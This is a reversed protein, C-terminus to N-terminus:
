KLSEFYAKEDFNKVKAVGDKVAAAAVATSVAAKVREDFPKPIVYDRGFELTSLNYAKKVADSVPLKALDALAKAAAVKMNETIKSARVDLAGRFIFPFGLVNNIQNPYDSRGTGVIADKRLRAVDEPMVEPIPNALAFIVPDKAMSLVMEDDLIKPASLGLFVDAGKLVEKLTKEKSDVAFELKQPTLDNRDKSIVGKSDVLIINEVGLNRYMKASAIGAAGAGSVVVKIDKFKKGSIEMANMLGATSIIATGHQDDHMVPIGLDQLAAEIEFCKPAAIDELNIGGVTPALAKCFNVIEEISHVNIEIDYANVNAFKKFLCAKGEMVPKSAQAGINGLGLVASGDSVIAVLNAKNTYTYALENDKAIELCPEAVGPSYALSLDYSTAMPKSPVIDIKGGLHYKLAEEKLNM